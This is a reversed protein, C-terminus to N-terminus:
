TSEGGTQAGTLWSRWAAAWRSTGAGSGDGGGLVLPPPDGSAQVVAGHLLEDGGRLVTERTAEEGGGVPCRDASGSGRPRPCPGGEVTPESRWKQHVEGVTAPGPLRDEARDSDRRCPAARPSRTWTSGVRVGPTARVIAVFAVEVADSSLSVMRLTTLCARFRPPRIYRAGCPRWVAGHHEVDGVVAHAEVRGRHEVARWGPCRSGEPAARGPRPPARDSPHRGGRAAPVRHLRARKLRVSFGADVIRTTGRRSVM